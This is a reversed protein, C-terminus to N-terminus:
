ISLNRGETTGILLNLDVYFDAKYKGTKPDALLLPARVWPDLM